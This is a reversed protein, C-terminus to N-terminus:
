PVVIEGARSLGRRFLVPGVSENVAIVGIILTQMAPGLGPLREAVITALGLAVGAQSVLGTWTERAVVPEAGGVRAGARAGGFIAGVASAAALPLILPWLGAFSASM